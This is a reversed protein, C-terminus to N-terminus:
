SNLRTSKRDRRQEHLCREVNSANDQRGRPEREDAEARLRRSRLPAEQDRLAARKQHILPPDGGERRHRDQQEHQAEVQEAVAHAVHQVRAQALDSSPRPAQGPAGEPPTALKFIPKTTRKPTRGSNPRGWRYASTRSIATAASAAPNSEM